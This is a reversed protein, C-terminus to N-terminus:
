KANSVAGLIKYKLKIKFLERSIESSNLSEEVFEEIRQFQSQVIKAEYDSLLGKQGLDPIIIFDYIIAKEKGPFRRLVRGRRQIYEKPNGTSCMLIATRTSPIDVGEDLCKIAILIDYVGDDFNKLLHDRETLGNYKAQKRI